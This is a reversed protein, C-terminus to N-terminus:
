MIAAATTPPKATQRMASDAPRGSGPDAGEWQAQGRPRPRPDARAEWGGVRGARCTWAAGVQRSGAEDVGIM